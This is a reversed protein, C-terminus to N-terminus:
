TQNLDIVKPHSFKAIAELERHYDVPGLSLQPLGIVKVARVGTEHKGRACSELWVNGHGGKGICKVRM